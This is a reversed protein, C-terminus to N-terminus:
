TDLAIVQEVEEPGLRRPQPVGFDRLLSRVDLNDPFFTATFTHIGRAVAATGLLVLLNTALRVHRWEPDVVVAVEASDSDPTGEYRAIGVGVGDPGIAVLALRHVYDVRVLHDITAADTPPRGGLFRARLTEPDATEIRIRLQDADSPVIPRVHVVRGDDLTVDTELERPYGRPKRRVPM